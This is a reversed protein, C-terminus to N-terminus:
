ATSGITIENDIQRLKCENIIEIYFYAQGTRM